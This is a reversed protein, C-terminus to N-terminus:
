LDYHKESVTFIDYDLTLPCQTYAETGFVVMGIRDYSRGEIFDKVVAKVVDLRTAEDGDLELDLAKMSGSTDLTLVIDVGESDVETYKNGWQPRALAFVLLLMAIFRLLPALFELYSKWTKKSKSLVKTSSISFKLHHLKVLDFIFLPVVILLLLFYGPSHYQFFSDDM